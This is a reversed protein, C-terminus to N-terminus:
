ARAEMEGGIEQRKGLFLKYKGLLMRAIYFDRISKYQNIV